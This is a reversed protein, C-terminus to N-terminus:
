WVQDLDIVRELEELSTVGQLVKIVGDQQMTFIGQPQAAKWIERESPNTRLVQEISQDMRIAEFIGIRGKYGTNNCVSCGVPQWIMEQQPIASKDQITALNKQILKKDVDNIAVQKKCKECLKRTLRQAMSLNIASSLIKPDIGLDILRPFTGAANNTHLTSFVLHGTLAANIAIEATEHDRIEGVMIVDPDQRLASRLGSLFTYGKESDTQTQVIGPLHYEIPNEITIIKIQPTHIKKVFAYLATTKGSGTPGTTLLMGNPKNMEHLIVELLKPTIGLEELKVSISKPNLVRMVISENYAGPLISTRIEIESDSLKISFRGDQANSHMNLKLGSLLKVRSLILTYTHPDFIAIEVLVGDLRYRLRVTSEEPEFHIDSAGLALSGALIIELISSTRHSKNTALTQQVLRTVDELSHVADATKALEDNAIDLAGAQTEIHEALDKYRAYVAELSNESVMYPTVAYGESALERLVQQTQEMNPSFIGVDLRHAVLNFGVMKANRAKVEPIVRLADLNVPAITLDLYKLQYKQALIQALNEADTDNFEKLRKNQLEDDFKIMAKNYVIM